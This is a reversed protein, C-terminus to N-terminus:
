RMITSNCNFVSGNWMTAGKGIVSCGFNLMLVNELCVPGTFNLGSPTDHLNQLYMVAIFDLM